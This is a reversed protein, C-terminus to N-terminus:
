RRRLRATRQAGSCIMTVRPTAPLRPSIAFVSSRGPSFTPTSSGPEGAAGFSERFAELGGLLGPNLFAFQSWLEAIANEVPTGTLSLRHESRLLRVARSTNALPNKIAQAEDLIVYQFRHARLTEIDDPFAATDLEPAM